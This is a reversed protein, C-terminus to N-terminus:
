YDFNSHYGHLVIAWKNSQENALYETGRLIIGDEAKVEVKKSEITESWEKALEKEKQRNHEIIKESEDDISVVELTEVNKVERSGGDGTKLLAYNVFYNGIGITLVVSILVIALITILLIKLGKMKKSKQEM